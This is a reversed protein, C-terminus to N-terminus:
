ILVRNPLRALPFTLLTFVGSGSVSKDTRFSKVAKEATGGQTFIGFCTSGSGTLGCFDAGQNQFGGLIARYADKAPSSDPCDEALFLELFDNEYPWRSPPGKLADVLSQESFEAQGQLKEGFIAARHADLLRFAKATNSPFGPNVLVVEFEPPGAIPRIHEGRGTVYAAGGQLFFPVDSGLEAAAQLLGTRDFPTGALENLALLTSAGDSSGGGLGAGLPIRKELRIRLSQDFGSRVRFLDLAKLVINDERPIEEDLRPRKDEVLFEDAGGADGLEFHLTDGFALALFISELEHFGDSRRGKVRLHLNIKCPAEISLATRM